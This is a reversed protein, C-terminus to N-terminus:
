RRRGKYVVKETDHHDASVKQNSRRRGYVVHEEEERACIEIVMFDQSPLHAMIVQNIVLDQRSNMSRFLHRGFKMFPNEALCNPWTPSDPRVVIPGWSLDRGQRSAEMYMSRVADDNMITDIGVYRLTQATGGAAIYNATVMQHLRMNTFRRSLDEEPALRATAVIYAHHRVSVAYTHLSKNDRTLIEFLEWECWPGVYPEM